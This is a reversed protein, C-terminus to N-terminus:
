IDIEFSLTRDSAALLTYSAGSSKGVFNWSNGFEDLRVDPLDSSALKQRVPM